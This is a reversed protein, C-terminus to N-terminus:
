HILSAVVLALLMTFAEVDPLVARAIITIPELVPDFAVANVFPFVAPGVGAVPLVIVHV